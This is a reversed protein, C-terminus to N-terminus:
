LHYKYLWVYAYGQQKIILNFRTEERFFISTFFYYNPVKIEFHNYTVKDISIYSFFLTKILDFDLHGNNGDKETIKIIHLITYSM